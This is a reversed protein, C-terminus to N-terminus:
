TPRDGAPSYVCLVVDEGTHGNTTWGVHALKNIMPGVVYNLMGPKAEKIAKIEAEKPDTISYYNAMVEKINSPRGFQEGFGQSLKAPLHGLPMPIVPPDVHSVRVNPDVQIGAPNNVFREM